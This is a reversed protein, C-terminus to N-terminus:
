DVGDYNNMKAALELLKVVADQYYQGRGLAVIKRFYERAALFNRQKYLSDALLFLAEPYTDLKQARPNDVLGVFLM